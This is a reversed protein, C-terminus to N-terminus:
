SPDPVKREKPYGEVVRLVFMRDNDKITLSIPRACYEIRVNHEEPVQRVTVNDVLTGGPELDQLADVLEILPKYLQHYKHVVRTEARVKSPQKKM